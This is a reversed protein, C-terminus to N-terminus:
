VWNGAQCACYGGKEGALKSYEQTESFSRYGNKVKPSGKVKKAQIKVLNIEEEEWPKFAAVM